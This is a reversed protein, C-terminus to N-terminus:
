PHSDKRSSPHNGARRRSFRLDGLRDRLHAEFRRRGAHEAAKDREALLRTLASLRLNPDGALAKLVAQFGAAMRRATAAAFLGRDYELVGRLGERTPTLNAALAFKTPGAGTLLPTAQIGPVTLQPEEDQLVFWVEYLPAHRPDRDPRLAALLRDYPLERLAWAAVTTRRVREVADQFSPDDGLDTRLVVTNTFLGVVGELARAPRVEVPTGVRQDRQGTLAGLYLEFAALLTIFPTAGWGAAAANLARLGEAGLDLPAMGGPRSPASEGPSRRDYPLAIRPLEGGLRSRWRELLPPMAGGDDLWRREWAAFDGYQLAPPSLSSERGAALDSYLQQLEELLIAISGGDAAIHHVNILLDWRGPGHHLLVVRLPAATALDFRYAREATALRRAERDAAHQELGSLDVVPWVEPPPAPLLHARPLGGAAPYCTRLVEHRTALTSWAARLAWPDVAGQLRVASPMGFAPSGPDIRDLFWLREQAFSLRHRQAAPGLPPPEPRLPRRMREGLREAQLRLTPAEFLDSLPMEVGFTERIRPILRAAALSHGGLAFFDDGPGATEVGLVQQWLAALGEEEPSRGVAPSPETKLPQPTAMRGRDIKGSVTTELREVAAWLSPQLYAPVRGSLETAIEGLPRGAVVWAALAPGAPGALLAM